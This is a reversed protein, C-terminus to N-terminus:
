IIYATIDGAIIRASAIEKTREADEIYKIVRPILLTSLVAIIAIVVVLEVLTFGKESNKIKLM